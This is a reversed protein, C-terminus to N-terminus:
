AIVTGNCDDVHARNDNSGDGRATNAASLVHHRTLSLGLRTTATATASTTTSTTSSM